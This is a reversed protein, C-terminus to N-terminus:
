IIRHADEVDRALGAADRDRDGARELGHAHRHRALRGENRRGDERGLSM